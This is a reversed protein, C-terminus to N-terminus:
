HKKNEKAAKEKAEKKGEAAEQKPTEHKVDVIKGTNADVNVETVGTNNPETIDFSYIWKGKENELEESKIKGNPVKKLATARAEEKTIKPTPKTTTSAFAGVTLFSALAVVTAIKKQMNGDGEQKFMEM